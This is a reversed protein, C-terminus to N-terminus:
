YIVTKKVSTKNGSPDEAIFELTNAGTKQLLYTSAFSGDEKVDIIQGNLTLFADAETRGEVQVYPFFAHISTVTLAPPTTDGSAGITKASRPVQVVFQYPECWPSKRGRSDISRVRWFFQKKNARPIEILISSRALSTNEAIIKGFLFNESIQVHYHAALAVDRWKLEIKLPQDSLFEFLQGNPPSIASPISPLQSVAATDNKDIKLEQLDKLQMVKGTRTTIEGYGKTIAATDEGAQQDSIANGVSGPALKLKSIKQTAITAVSTSKEANINGEGSEIVLLAQDRANSAANRKVVVISDPQVTIETGDDFRIKAASDPYTHVRDGERLEVKFSAPKWVFEDKSKIEVKGELDMFLAASEVSETNATEDTQTQHGRIWLFYIGALIAGALVFASITITRISITQWEVEINRGIRAM